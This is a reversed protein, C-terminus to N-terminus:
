KKVGHFKKMGNNASQKWLYKLSLLSGGIELDIQMIRTLRLLATTQITEILGGIELVLLGKPVTERASIVIVIVMVRM